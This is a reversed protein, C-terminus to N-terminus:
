SSLPPSFTINLTTATGKQITQFLSPSVQIYPQLEPVVRVVVNSANQSAKFTVTVTKSEKINIAQTLSSPTWEIAPAAYALGSIMAPLVVLVGLFVLVCDRHNFGRIQGVISKESVM